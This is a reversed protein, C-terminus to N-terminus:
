AGYWRQLAQRCQESLVGDVSLRDVVVGKGPDLVREQSGPMLALLFDRRGRNSDSNTVIVDVEQAVAGTIMARRTYEALPLAYADADLREPYRGSPLRSLGLLNAYIEQFEILITPEGREAMMKKATASKNAGPPGSLLLGPM